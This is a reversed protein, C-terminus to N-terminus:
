QATDAAPAAANPDTSGAFDIVFSVNGMLPVRKEYAFSIEPEGGDRTIVLDRGRVADVNNIGANRDYAEMMERPTGGAEKAKVIADKITNYELYAPVLKIAVLAVVCLVALVAILGTLSMGKEANLFYQKGYQKKNGQM